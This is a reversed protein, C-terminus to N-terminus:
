KGPRKTQIRERWMRQLAAESEDIVRLEVKQNAVTLIRILKELSFRELHGRHLRSMRATGIGLVEGAIMVTHKEVARLIELRLQEKLQPIPDIAM